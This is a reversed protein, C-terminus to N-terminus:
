DVREFRLRAIVGAHDSPWFGSATRHLERHGLRLAQTRDPLADIFIVDIREDLASPLNLLDPEQCCTFGPRSPHALTWADAFGSAAIQLYPPVIQLSGVQSVDDDPSSNIDGALIVPAGAASPLADLIALLEQAQAAQIASSEPRSPDPTQVELHTNVFRYAAGRVWADVVSFGREQAIPGVPTDAEAVVGFNCGDVSIRCGTAALPVVATAVDWRALIVDRDLLSVTGLGPIPVAIDLNENVAAIEYAAGTADLADLLDALYDRFPPAGNSGDLRFDFVEQLAVLHPRKRAIEQVLSAAREPFNNQAVQQLARQAELLFADADPAAIVPVLDAGLYLNRTMVTVLDPRQAHAPAATFLTLAILALTCHPRTM